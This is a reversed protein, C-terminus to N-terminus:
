LRELTEMVRNFLDPERTIFTFSNGNAMYSKPKIRGIQEWFKERIKLAGENLRALKEADTGIYMTAVTPRPDGLSFTGYNVFVEVDTPIAPQEDFIYWEDFWVFSLEQTGTIKPSIALKDEQRWGESFQQGSLRLPGSDLATVVVFNDLVVEPCAKLIHALPRSTDRMDVTRGLWFYDGQKGQYLKSM